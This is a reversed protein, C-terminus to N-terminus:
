SVMVGGEHSKRIVFQSQSSASVALSDAPREDIWGAASSSVQRAIWASASGKRMMMWRTSAQTVPAHTLALGEECSMTTQEISRVQIACWAHGM